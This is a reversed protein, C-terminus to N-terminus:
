LINVKVMCLIATINLNILKSLSLYKQIYEIYLIWFKYNKFMESGIQNVSKPLINENTIINLDIAKSLTLLFIFSRKWKLNKKQNRIMQYYISELQKIISSMKYKNMKSNLKQKLNSSTHQTYQSNNPKSYSNTKNINNQPKNKNASKSRSYCRDSTIPSKNLNQNTAKPFKPKNMPSLSSHPPINTKNM